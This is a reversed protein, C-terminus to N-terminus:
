HQPKIAFELAAVLRFSTWFNAWHANDWIEWIVLLFDEVFAEESMCSAARSPENLLKSM